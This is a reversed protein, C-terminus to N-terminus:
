RPLRRAHEVPVDTVAPHLPHGLLTTGHMLNKVSQGPRGLARYVAGIAGQLLDGVTELWTQRRIVRDVLPEAM